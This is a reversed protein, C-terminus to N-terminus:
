KKFGKLEASIKRILEAQIAQTDNESYSIKEARSLVNKLGEFEGAESDSLNKEDRLAIYRKKRKETKVSEDTPVGFAESVLLQSILMQSPDASLAHLDISKGDRKLYYVQNSNSQQVMMPSHTTVFMQMNPLKEDLFDYLARQWLPHLHLDVEDIILVGRIRLPERYDEFINTIRFLLDGIWAAVNQYGDSLYQLPVIGDPTEFLLQRRKKDIDIFSLGPLFGALVSRVTEMGGEPNRYDVDMAWSELPNLTVDPDFLTAISRARVHGYRGGKSGFTSDGSLRRSAGYATVFYNRESHDIADDLPSLTSRSRAIVDSISDGRDIELRVERREGSKTQLVAEIQCKNEGIRIWSDPQGLLESMADSGCTVIAASRLITSKGTGNEGILITWKRNSSKAETFDLELNEFCRVNTLRLSRLFM